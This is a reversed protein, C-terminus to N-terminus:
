SFILLSRKRKGDRVGTEKLKLGRVAHNITSVVKDNDFKHDIVILIGMTMFYMSCYHSM